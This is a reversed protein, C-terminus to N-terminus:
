SPRWERSIIRHVNVRMLWCANLRVHRQAEDVAPEHPIRDPGLHPLARKEERGVQGLAPLRRVIRGIDKM